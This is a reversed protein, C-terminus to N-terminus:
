EYRPNPGYDNEGEDSQQLFFWLLILAGIFPILGILLWWGSRNTDHLRRISVGLDPLFTALAYLIWIWELDTEEFFFGVLGILSNVLWWVWFETRRARGEFVAYKQLVAFYWHM